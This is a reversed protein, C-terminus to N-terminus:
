KNKQTFNFLMYGWMTHTLVMQISAFVRMAANDPAIKGYGVTYSTVISFYLSDGYSLNYKTDACAFYAVSFVMILAFNLCVYVWWADVMEVHLAGVQMSVFIHM